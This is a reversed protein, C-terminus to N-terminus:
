QELKARRFRIEYEVDDLTRLLEQECTAPDGDCTRCEALEELKRNCREWEALLEALRRDTV